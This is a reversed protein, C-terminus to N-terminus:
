VRFTSVDKHFQRGFPRQESARRPEQGLALFHAPRRAPRLRLPTWKSQPRPEGVPMVEIPYAEDDVQATIHAARKQCAECIRPEEPTENRSAPAIM